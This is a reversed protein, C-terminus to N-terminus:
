RTFQGQAARRRVRRRGHARRYGGPAGRRARAQRNGAAAQRGSRPRALRQHAQLPRSGPVAGRADAGDGPLARHSGAPTGAPVSPEAHGDPSRSQGTQRAAAPQRAATDAGEKTGVSRADSLVRPPPRAIRHARLESRRGDPPRGQAMARARHRPEARRAGADRHGSGAFRQSRAAGVVGLPRAARGAHLRAAAARRSQRRRDRRHARRGGAIRGAGTRHHRPLAVRAVAPRRQPPAFAGGAAHRRHHIRRGAPRAPHDPLADHAHGARVRQAPDRDAGALDAHGGPRSPDSLREPSQPGGHADEPQFDAAVPAGVRAGRRARRRSGPEVGSLRHGAVALFSGHTGRGSAHFRARIRDLGAAPRHRHQRIDAAGRVVCTRARAARHREPQRHQHQATRFDRGAQHGGPTGRDPPIEYEQVASADLALSARTDLNRDLVLFTDVDLRVLAAANLSKSFFDPRNGRAFEATETWIAYDGMASYLDQLETAFGRQLQQSQMDVDRSEIDTVNVLWGRQSWGYFVVLIIAVVAGIVPLPSQRIRTRTEPNTNRTMVHVVDRANKPWGSTHGGRGRHGADFRACNGTFKLHKRYGLALCVLRDRM